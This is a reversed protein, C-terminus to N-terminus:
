GGAVAPIISIIDTEKTETNLGSLFRIDQGNLYINVFPCIDNNHDLLYPKLDPHNIILQRFVISLNDGRLLLSEQQNVFKRLQLPICITAM